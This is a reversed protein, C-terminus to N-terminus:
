LLRCVQRYRDPYPCTSSNSSLISGLIDVSSNWELSIIKPSIKHDSDLISLFSALFPVEFVDWCGFTYCPIIQSGTKLALNIFGKRDRLKLVETSSSPGLYEFM